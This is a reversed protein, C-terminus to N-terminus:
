SNKDDEETENRRKTGFGVWINRNKFGQQKLTETQSTGFFCYGRHRLLFTGKTTSLAGYCSVGSKEYCHTRQEAAGLSSCNSQLLLYGAKVFSWPCMLRSSSPLAAEEERVTFFASADPPSLYHSMPMPIFSHRKERSVALGMGLLDMNLQM